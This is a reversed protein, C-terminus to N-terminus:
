AAGESPTRAPLVASDLVARSVTDRTLLFFEGCTLHVWIERAVGSSAEAGYLYDAWDRDPVESSPSPRHQGADAAFHFEPEDRPGCFPCPLLQM